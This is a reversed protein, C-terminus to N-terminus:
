LIINNAVKILEAESLGEGVLSVFAGMEEDAWVIQIGSGESILMADNNQVEINRVAADETDVSLIGSESTYVELIIEGGDDSKYILWSGRSDTGQSELTYGTPLWGVNRQESVESESVTENTFRLDTRDYFTEVVLNLTNARFTPSVAFATTFLLMAVFVVVSVKSVFRSITVGIYRVKKKAFCNSITMECKRRSEESIVFDPMAKLKENEELAKKGEYAALDDMLLAFLVDEYQERLVDRKNM